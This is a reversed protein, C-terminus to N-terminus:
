GRTVVMRSETLKVTKTSEYRMIRPILSKEKSSCANYIKIFDVKDPNKRRHIGSETVQWLNDEEQKALNERISGEPYKTIKGKIHLNKKSWKWNIKTHTLTWEKGYLYGTTAIGNTSFVISKGWQIEKVKKDSIFKQIKFEIRNWLNTCRNKHWYRM